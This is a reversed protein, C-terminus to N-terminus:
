TDHRSSRLRVAMGADGDRHRGQATGSLGGNYSTAAKTSCSRLLMRLWWACHKRSVNSKSASRSFAHTTGGAASAESICAKSLRSSVLGSKSPNSQCTSLPTIAHRGKIPRSMLLREGAAKSCSKEVTLVRTWLYARPQLPTTMM